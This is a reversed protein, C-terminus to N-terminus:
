VVIMVTDHKIQRIGNCKTHIIKITFHICNNYLKLYKLKCYRVCSAGQIVRPSFM